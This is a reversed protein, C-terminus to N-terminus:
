LKEIPLSEFGFGRDQAFRQLESLFNIRNYTYSNFDVGVTGNKVFSLAYDALNAIDYLIAKEKARDYRYFSVMIHCDFHAKDNYFGKIQPNFWNYVRITINNKKM